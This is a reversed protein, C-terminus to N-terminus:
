EGEVRITYVDEKPILTYGDSTRIKIFDEDESKNRGGDWYSIDKVDRYETPEERNSMRYVLAKM